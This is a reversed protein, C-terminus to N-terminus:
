RRRHNDLGSAVGSLTFGEIVDSALLDHPYGLEVATEADIARFAEHDLDVDLCRLNDAIQTASRAGLVPIIPGYSRKSLIAALAFASPSCGVEAALSAVRRGLEIRRQTFPLWSRSSAGQDQADYKGSLVGGALPSWALIGLDLERAMPLLEREATREVLSYEVQIAVVPAWGRLDALMGARAIQWAPTNSFGVYLIKGASVLDDLGRMIEEVPTTGDWSHLWLVDIHDSGLRRLSAEVSRMMNKRSNGAKGTDHDTSSSYKTGIVFHDRDAGVFEGVLRESEGDTYVYATDIFNGGAEAFTDFVARSADRDAGWGWNDGFTMAGLCLQSVRLGSRGLLRYRM